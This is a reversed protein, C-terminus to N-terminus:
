ENDGGEKALKAIISGLADKIEEKKLSQVLNSLGEITILRTIKNCHVAIIQGTAMVEDNSETIDNYVGLIINTQENLLEKGSINDKIIFTFVKKHLEKEEKNNVKITSKEKEYIKTKEM